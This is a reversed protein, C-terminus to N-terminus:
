VVIGYKSMKKLVIDALYGGMMGSLVSIILSIMLPIFPLQMIVLAVLITGTLNAVICYLCLTFLSSGKLFLALIEISLGPLTYSVISFVGHSGFFGLIMVTIGQALGFIFASGTKNVIVKTIAMWMMLLGGSLSGGPIRLSSSVIHVLPNIIPKIALGIAALCAIMVLDLLTFRKFHREKINM